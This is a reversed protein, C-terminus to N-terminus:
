EDMADLVEAVLHRVATPDDAKDHIALVLHRVVDLTTAIDTGGPFNIVTM